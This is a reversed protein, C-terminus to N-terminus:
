ALSWGPLAILSEVTKKLGVATSATRRDEEPSPILILEMVHRGLISFSTSVADNARFILACSPAPALVLALALALAALPCSTRAGAALLKSRVNCVISCPNRPRSIDAFSRHLQRGRATTTYSAAQYPQHHRLESKM